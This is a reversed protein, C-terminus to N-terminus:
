RSLESLYTIAESYLTYVHRETYGIKEAIKEISLGDIFYAELVECFRPDELNDIEEYVSKKLGRSKAKLRKIREELDEKDAILDDTTVPVSGRPMGSLNSTKVSYLRENIKVLKNELRSICAQNKRYRKLYRKKRRKIEESSQEDM